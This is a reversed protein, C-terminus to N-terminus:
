HRKTRLMKWTQLTAHINRVQLYGVLKALHHALKKLGKECAQQQKETRQQKTAELEAVVEAEIKRGVLLGQRHFAENWLHTSWALAEQTFPEELAPDQQGQQQEQTPQEEQAAEQEQSLDTSM